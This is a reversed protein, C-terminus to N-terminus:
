SAVPAKTTLSEYILLVAGAFIAVDAFNFVYNALPGAWFPTHFYLFDAVAGHTLRDLANGLAGGILCGFAAVSLGSKARWLLVGLVLSAVLALAVLAYRGLDSDSHLMTYAVGRNWSMTLALFPTLEIRPADSTDLLGIAWSKSAQDAALVAAALAFGAVRRKM